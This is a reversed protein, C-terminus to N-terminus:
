TMNYMIKPLPDFVRISLASFNGFCLGPFLRVCKLFVRIIKRNYWLSIASDTKEWYKFYHYFYSTDILSKLPLCININMNMVNLFQLKHLNTLFGNWLIFVSISFSGFRKKWTNSLIPIYIRTNGNTQLNPYNVDTCIRM